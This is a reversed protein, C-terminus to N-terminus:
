KDSAEYYIAQQLPQEAASTQVASAPNVQPMSSQQQQWSVQRVPPALMEPTINMAIRPPRAQQRSKPKATAVRAKSMELAAQRLSPPLAPPADEMQPLEPLESFPDFDIPGEEAPAEEPGPLLPAPDAGPIELPAAEDATRKKKAKPAVRLDEQEKKPLELDELDDPLQTDEDESEGAEVPSREIKEGPWTRWRTHYHGWTDRKPRCIGDAACSCPTTPGCGCLREGVAYSLREAGMFGLMSVALILGTLKFNFTRNQSM